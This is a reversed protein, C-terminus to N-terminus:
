IGWIATRCIRDFQRVPRPFLDFARRNRGNSIPRSSSARQGELRAKWDDIEDANRRLLSAGPRGHRAAAGSFPEGEATGQIEVIGGKGTM